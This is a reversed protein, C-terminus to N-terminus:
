LFIYQFQHHLSVCKLDHTYKFALFSPSDKIIDPIENWVIQGRSRISKEQTTFLRFSLEPDRNSRLNYSSKTNANSSTFYNGIRVPM